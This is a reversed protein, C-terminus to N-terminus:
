VNGAIQRIKKMLLPIRQQSASDPLLHGPLADLFDRNQMFVNFALALFTRADEPATMVDAGLEPRGDILTVIDEMDHSAIFDGKGRSYFAEIKTALFYPGTVVRIAMKDAIERITATRLAQPYWKNSFGLIEENTPMVDLAIGDIRWRCLPADESIDETFGLSRLSESLRYYEGRSAIEVIVDVDTTIRVDPIAKDTILLATAAGGLFVVRDRLDGLRKAVHRIMELNSEVASVM